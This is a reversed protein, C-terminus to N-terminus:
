DPEGDYYFRSQLFEALGDLDPFLSVGSVGCSFLQARLDEFDRGPIRIKTIKHKYLTNAELPIFRGDKRRSHCTFVGSQAPIRRSILRSRLIRTKAASYPSEETPFEIFDEPRTQLIWVVGNCLGGKKSRKPPRRVCFWLAALASYSWDLLRTPLGHHQALALWDWSTTPNFELFPLSLREFETMVLREMKAFDKGKATIRAIRPILPKLTRQGRFLLDSPNGGDVATKKVEEVHDLFSSVSTRSQKM